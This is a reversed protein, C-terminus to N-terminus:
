TEALAKRDKIFIGGPNRSTRLCEPEADSGNRDMSRDSSTLPGVSARTYIGTMHITIGPTNIITDTIPIIIIAATGAM